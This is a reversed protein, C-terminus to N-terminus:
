NHDTFNFPETRFFTVTEDLALIAAVHEDM